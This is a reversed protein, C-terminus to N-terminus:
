TIGINRPEMSLITTTLSPTSLRYITGILEPWSSKRYTVDSALIYNWKTALFKAEDDTSWRLQATSVRRGPEVNVGINTDALKLVDANGDSIVVVEAGLADAVLSSFGVGAGLELVTAGRMMSGVQHELYWSLVNAGQWVAAGTSASGGWNQNVILLRGARYRVVRDLQQCTSRWEDSNQEDLTCTVSELNHAAASFAEPINGFSLSSSLLSAAVAKPLLAAEVCLETLLFLHVVLLIM